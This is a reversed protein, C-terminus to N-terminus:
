QVPGLDSWAFISSFDDQYNQAVKGKIWIHFRYM